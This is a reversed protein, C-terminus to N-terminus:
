EWTANRLAAEDLTRTGANRAALEELVEIKQTTSLCLLVLEPVMLMVLGQTVPTGFSMCIAEMATVGLEAVMVAGAPQVRTPARSLWAVEVELESATYQFAQVAASGVAVKVTM